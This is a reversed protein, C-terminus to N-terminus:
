NEYASTPGPVPTPAPLQPAPPAPTPMPPVPSASTPTSNWPIGFAPHPRPIPPAFPGVRGARIDGLTGHYNVNIYGLGVTGGNPGGQWGGHFCRGCVYWGCGRYGNGGLYYCGNDCCHGFWASATEPMALFAVAAIASIGSFIWKRLM